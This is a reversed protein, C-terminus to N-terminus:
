TTKANLILTLIPASLRTTTGDKTVANIDHEGNVMLYKVTSVDQGLVANHLPGDGYRDVAKVNAKVKVLYQVVALKGRYCAYLFPTKGYKRESAELRAKSEVLLRLIEMNGKGCAYHLPTYGDKTVANIDHEGNVMLYKVTSVDQGLVANHLPGDGYRDVAKVNAKVKVLYQVVALKGRYCAYLFPTRGYKRESAVLNAKSEVLLRLIEVNGEECAYHLPTYGDEDKANITAKSDLLLRAVHPQNFECATHLLTRGQKDVVRDINASQHEPETILAQILELSGEKVAQLISMKEEVKAPTEETAPHGPPMVDFAWYELILALINAVLHSSLGKHFRHFVAILDKLTPMCDGKQRLKDIQFINSHMPFAQIRLIQFLETKWDDRELLKNIMFVAAPYDAVIIVDMSRPKSFIRINTPPRPNCHHVISVTPMCKIKGDNVLQKFDDLILTRVQLVKPIETAFTTFMCKICGKQTEVKGFKIEQRRVISTCYNILTECRACDQIEEDQKFYNEKEFKFNLTWEDHKLQQKEDNKVRTWTDYTETIVNPFLIEPKQTEVGLKTELETELEELHLVRRLQDLIKRRENTVWSLLPGESVFNPIPGVQIVMAVKVGEYNQMSRNRARKNREDLAKGSQFSHKKHMGPRSKRKLDSSSAIDRGSTRSPRGNARRITISKGDLEADVEYSEISPFKRLEKSGTLTFYKHLVARYCECFAHYEDIIDKSLPPDFMGIKHVFGLTQTYSLKTTTCSSQVMSYAM